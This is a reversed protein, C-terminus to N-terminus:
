EAELREGTINLFVDDMSAKVVEFTEISAKYQEILAIADFPTDIPIHLTRNHKQYPINNEKLTKELTNKPTIRLTDNAFRLRLNEASDEARIQGEHLIIVHDAEIVEEMYHTTLFLTMKSITKLKLILEWIEKRSKPDLGTTPEDLILIQPNHLLARAIDIKRKQGGSLTSIHQHMFPKFHILSDLFELREQFAQNKLNYFGARIKLNEYVSLTPDLVSYQFVVGLTTRINADDEGLTYGNVKINGQNKELLTSLIEITTSKGAGNPGLLAFFADKQVTFNIGKVAHKGNYSKHLNTVEIANM